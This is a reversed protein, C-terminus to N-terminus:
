RPHLFQALTFGHKQRMSLPNGGGTIFGKKRGRWINKVDQCRGCRRTLRFQGDKGTPDVFIVQVWSHLNNENSCPTMYIVQPDSKRRRRTTQASKFVGQKYNCELCCRKAMLILIYERQWHVPCGQEARSRGPHRPSRRLREESGSRPRVLGLQCSTEGSRRGGISSGISM